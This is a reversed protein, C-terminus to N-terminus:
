GRWTTWGFYVDMGASLRTFTSYAFSLFPHAIGLFGQKLILVIGFRPGDPADTQEFAVVRPLVRPLARVCQGVHLSRALKGSDRAPEVSVFGLQQATPNGLSVDSLRLLVVGHDFIFPDSTPSQVCTPFAAYINRGRAWQSVGSFQDALGIRAVPEGQYENSVRAAWRTSRGCYGSRQGARWIAHRLNLSAPRPRSGDHRCCTTRPRPRTRSPWHRRRSARDTGTLRGRHQRLHEEWSPVSFIEVFRDPREGDRYLEWRSAGTRVGLRAFSGWRRLFAAQREPAVTFHVAVLVPGTDPEPDFALRADGALLRGAAPGPPRNRAGAM